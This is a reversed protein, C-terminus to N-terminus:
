WKAERSIQYNYTIVTIHYRAADSRDVGAALWKILPQTYTCLCVDVLVPLFIIKIIIIAVKIRFSLQNTTIYFYSVLIVM